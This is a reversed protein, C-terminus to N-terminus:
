GAGPRRSAHGQAGGRVTESKGARESGSPSLAPNDGMSACPALLFYADGEGAM